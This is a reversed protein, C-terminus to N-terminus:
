GHRVQGVSLGRRQRLGVVLQVLRGSRRVQREQVHGQRLRLQLQLQRRARQRVQRRPLLRRRLGLQLQVLQRGGHRVQRLSLGRRQRLGVVLRV